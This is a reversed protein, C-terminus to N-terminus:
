CALISHCRKAIGNSLGIAPRFIDWKGDSPKQGSGFIAQDRSGDALAM